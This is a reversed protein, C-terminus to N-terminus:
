SSAYLIVFPLVAFSFNFLLNIQLLVILSLELVFLEGEGGKYTDGKRPVM